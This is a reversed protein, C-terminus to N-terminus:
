RGFSNDVIKEFERILKQSRNKTKKNKNKKWRGGSNSGKDDLRLPSTGRQSPDARSIAKSCASSRPSIDMYIQILIETCWAPNSVHGKQDAAVQRAMQAMAERNVGRKAGWIKGRFNHVVLIYSHQRMNLGLGAKNPNSYWFTDAETERQNKNDFNQWETSNNYLINQLLVNIRVYKTIGIVLIAHINAHFYLSRKFM